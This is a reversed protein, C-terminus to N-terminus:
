MTAEIWLKNELSWVKKKGIRGNSEKAADSVAKVSVCAKLWLM